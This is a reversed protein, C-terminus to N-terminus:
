EKPPVLTFGQSTAINLMDYFYRMFVIKGDQIMSVSHYPIVIEKKTKKDTVTNTGWSLLWEGENWNNEVKVPLYLDGEISHTYQNTSNVFYEKHQKVNLSDLGGGLGYIMAKEHLQANMTAVDGKQLASTYTQILKMATAANDFELTVEPETSEQANIMLSSGIVLIVLLM